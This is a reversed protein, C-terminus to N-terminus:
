RAPCIGPFWLLKSPSQCDAPEKLEQVALYQSFPWPEHGPSLPVGGEDWMPYISPYVSELVSKLHVPPPLHTFQHILPSLCSAQHISQVNTSHISPMSSCVFLHIFPVSIPASYQVLDSYTEPLWTTQFADVYPVTARTTKGTTVPWRASCASVPVHLGGGWGVRIVWCVLVVFMGRITPQPM